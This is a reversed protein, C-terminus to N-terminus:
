CCRGTILSAIEAHAISRPRWTKSGPVIFDRGHLFAGSIEGFQNGFARMPMLWPCIGSRASSCTMPPNRDGRKLTSTVVVVNDFRADVETKRDRWV